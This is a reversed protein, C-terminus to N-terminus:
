GRYLVGDHVGTRVRGGCLSGTGTKLEVSDDEDDFRKVREPRPGREPFGEFGRAYTGLAHAIANVNTEFATFNVNDMNDDELHYNPDYPEGATGGFMVWEAETKNREAGTFTGGSPVGKAIFPGYDSRGDFPSSSTNWGQSWFFENLLQEAHESGRPGARAQGKPAHIYYDSNDGDYAGLKFNPSAIMDFNLYVRIEDLEEETCRQIWHRSGKLGSEEATWFAFRVRSNTRFRALQIALELLAATGSGNDNIGPGAAVSDTHAGLM